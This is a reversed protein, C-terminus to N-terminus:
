QRRADSPHVASTSFRAVAGPNNAKWYKLCRCGGCQVDRRKGYPRSLPSEPYLHPNSIKDVEDDPADVIAEILDEVAPTITGMIYSILFARDMGLQCFVQIPMAIRMGISVSSASFCKERSLSIGLVKIRMDLADDREQRLDRNEECLRKNTAVSALGLSKLGDVAEQYNTNLENYERPTPGFAWRWLRKFTNM